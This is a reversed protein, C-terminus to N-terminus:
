MTAPEASTLLTGLAAFPSTKPVNLAKSIKSQKKAPKVPAAQSVQQAPKVPTEVPINGLLLEYVQKLVAEDKCKELADRILKKENALRAKATEEAQKKETKFLSEAATRVIKAEDLKGAQELAHAQAVADSSKIFQAKVSEVKEKITDRQQAKKAAAETPKAPKALEHNERMYKAIASFRNEATEETCKRAKRYEIVFFGHVREWEEHTPANGLLKAVANGAQPIALDYAMDAKALAAAIVSVDSVSVPNSSKSM